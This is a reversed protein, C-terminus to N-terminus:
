KLSFSIDVSYGKSVDVSQKPFLIANVHNSLYDTNPEIMKKWYEFVPSMISSCSIEKHVVSEVNNAKHRNLM